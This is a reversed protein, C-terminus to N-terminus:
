VDHGYYTAKIELVAVCIYIYIYILDIYIYIIYIIYIINIYIIYIDTYIYINYIYLTKYIDHLTTKELNFLHHDTAYIQSQSPKDGIEGLRSEMMSPKGHCLDAM